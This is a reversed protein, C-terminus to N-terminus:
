YSLNLSTRTEVLSRRRRRQADFVNGVNVSTMVGYKTWPAGTVIPRAHWDGPNVPDVSLAQLFTQWASVVSTIHSSSVFGHGDLKSSSTIPPYVRGRGRPGPTATKFSVTVSAETPMPNGTALGSPPTGYTCTASRGEFANGTPALIPYLHITKLRVQTSFEATTMLTAAPGDIQKLYDIPDMVQGGIENWKWESVFTNGSDTATVNDAAFDGTTPLTGFDDPVSTDHWTRIGFQWRENALSADVYDGQFVLYLHKEDAM